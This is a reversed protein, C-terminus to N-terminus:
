WRISKTPVIERGIVLSFVNEASTRLRRAMPEKQLARVLGVCRGRLYSTLVAYLKASLEKEIQSYKTPDIELAKRWM